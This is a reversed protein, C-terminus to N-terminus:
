NRPFRQVNPYVPTPPSEPTIQRRFHRPKFLLDTLWRVIRRRLAPEEINPPPEGLPRRSSPIARIFGRGPFQYRLAARLQGQVRILGDCTEPLAKQIEGVAYDVELFPQVGIAGVLEELTTPRRGTPEAANMLLQLRGQRDEHRRILEITSIFAREVSLVRAIVDPDHSDVLFGISDPSIKPLDRPFGILGRLHFTVPDSGILTRVRNPEDILFYLRASELLEYMQGLTMLALNGATRKAGVGAWWTALVGLLFAALAGFLASWFEPKSLLDAITM